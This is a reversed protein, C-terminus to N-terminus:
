RIINHQKTCKHRLPWRQFLLQTSRKETNGAKGRKLQKRAVNPEM